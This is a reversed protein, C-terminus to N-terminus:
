YIRFQRCSHQPSVRAKWDRRRERVESFPLKAALALCDEESAIDFRQPLDLGPIPLDEPFVERHTPMHRAGLYVLRGRSHPVVM